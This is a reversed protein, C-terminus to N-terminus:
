FSQVLSVVKNTQEPMLHPGMPLSLLKRSIAEVEPDVKNQFQQSYAGSLHPPVPYHILTQVGREALYSQLGDRDPHEIVFLHWVSECGPAETPLKLNKVGSLQEQYTRAVQKRRQTWEDLVKLRIRLFAAQLEDLRSNIGLEDHHYRKESGYNRLLKVQHIIEENNSVVAGGDGYCGLNKGPYFSFAAADGLSGVRKGFYTAGHAQAADEIVMLKKERAIQLIPDMEVPQGYLHVPIVARTKPTVAKLLATPDMNYTTPKVAVPVPVAGVSSVALWTAIFTNSPVLVEDGSRIKMARLLLTLADLGNGVGLCFRAGCYKAFENEFAELEPGLIFHGREMVRHYANNLDERLEFYTAKLDLFPVSSSPPNSTM